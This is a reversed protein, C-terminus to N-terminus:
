VSDHEDEQMLLSELSHLCDKSNVDWWEFAHEQAKKISDPLIKTFLGQVRNHRDHRWYHFGQNDKLRLVLRVRDTGCKRSENDELSVTSFIIIQKNWNSTPIKYVKEWTVIKNPEFGESPDNTIERLTAPVISNDKRMKRLYKSPLADLINRGEQEFKYGNFPM